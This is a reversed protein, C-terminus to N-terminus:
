TLTSTTQYGLLAASHLQWSHMSSCTPAWGSIAKSTSLVYFERSGFAFSTCTGTKRATFGRNILSWMWLDENPVWYRDMNPGLLDGSYLYELERFRGVGLDVKKKFHDISKSPNVTDGFNNKVLTSYAMITLESLKLIYIYMYIYMYICM